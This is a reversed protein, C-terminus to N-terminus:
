PRIELGRSVHKAKEREADRRFIAAHGSIGRSVDLRLTAVVVVVANRCGERCRTAGVNANVPKKQKVTRVTSLRGVDFAYFHIPVTFVVTVTLLRETSERCLHRKQTVCLKMLRAAHRRQRGYTVYSAHFYSTSANLVHNQRLQQAPERSCAAIRYFGAATSIVFARTM